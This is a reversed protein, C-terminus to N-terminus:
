TCNCEGSNSAPDRDVLYRDFVEAGREWSIYLQGRTLFCAVSHRALHHMWGEQKLQRMAADIWPFGTLGDAWKQLAEEDEKPGKPRPIIQEGNEDYVNRLKWDILRCIKNGRIQGFPKGIALQAAFYMERFILQGPLNEPESSTEGDYQDMLDVVKWYFERVGLAGFKIYPSLQTTAPPDYEAPSTQPKRFTATADENQIWKDLRRLAEDEGGPIQTTAEKVDYGLEELRPPTLSDGAGTVSYYVTLEGTRHEANIDHDPPKFLKVEKKIAELKLNDAKPVSTPAKSPRSIEMDKVLNKFGQATTTPEGRNKAIVADIDYLTHGTIDLVEVKADKAIQKIKEDREVAYPAPDQSHTDFLIVDIFIHRVKEYVLHTINWQKFLAPFLDVPDARFVHLKNGMDNLKGDLENM